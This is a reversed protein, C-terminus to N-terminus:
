EGATFALRFGYSTWNGQHGNRGASTCDTNNISFYGGRIVNRNYTNSGETKPTDPQVTDVCPDTVAAGDSYGPVNSSATWYDACAEYVNGVMDYLGYANPLKGGVPHTTAGSNGSHWAIANLNESTLGKGTYLESTTGARCAREWQAETPYDVKGAAGLLNASISNTVVSRFVSYLASEVPRSDGKVASGDWVGRTLKKYQMQTVPFVGVFYDKTLTVDHVQSANGGSGFAGGTQGMSFTGKPIKRMVLKTTAYAADNTVGTWVLVNDLSTSAGPIVDGFDTEVSGFKGNLLDGRTVDTCPFKGSEATLDFIKYLVEDMGTSSTVSLKVKFIALAVKETGFATVPDIIFQGIGDTSIGYLEGTIASALRESDLEVNGNYAQVKIDVPDTVDALKYEVKVDTSWPWQQRVIVQEIVAADLSAAAFTSFVLYALKKM